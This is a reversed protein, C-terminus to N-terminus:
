SSPPSTPSPGCFPRLAERQERSLITVPYIASRTGREFFPHPWVKGTLRWGIMRLIAPLMVSVRAGESGPPAGGVAYEGFIAGGPPSLLADPKGSPGAVVSSLM